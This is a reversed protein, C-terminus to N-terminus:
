KSHPTFPWRRGVWIIQGDPKLDWGNSHKHLDLESQLPEGLFWDLLSDLVRIIRSGHARNGKALLIVKVKPPKTCRVVAGDSRLCYGNSYGTLFLESPSPVRLIRNIV